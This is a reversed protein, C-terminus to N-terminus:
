VSFTPSVDDIWSAKLKEKELFGMPVGDKPVLGLSESVVKFSTSFLLVWYCRRAVGLLLFSLNTCRLEKLLSLFVYIFKYLVRLSWGTGLKGVVSGEVVWFVVAFFNDVKLDPFM